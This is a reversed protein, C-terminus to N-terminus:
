NERQSKYPEKCVHTHYTVRDHRVRQSGMSWLGGSEEKQPIRWASSYPFLNGHGGGPSGGSGPILGMDTMDGSNAPLNKVVLAM